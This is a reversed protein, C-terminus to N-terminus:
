AAVTLWLWTIRMELMEQCNGVLWCILDISFGVPFTVDMGWSSQAQAVVAVWVGGHVRGSGHWGQGACFRKHMGVCLSPLFSLPLFYMQLSRTLKGCPFEITFVVPLWFYSKSRRIKKGGQAWETARNLLFIDRFNHGLMPSMNILQRYFSAALLIHLVRLKSVLDLFMVSSQSCPIMWFNPLSPSENM